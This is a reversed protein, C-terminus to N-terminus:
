SGPVPSLLLLTGFFYLPLFLNDIQKTFTELLSVVAVSAAFQVVQFSRVSLLLVMNGLCGQAVAVVVLIGLFGALTGEVTKKTGPWRTRGLM